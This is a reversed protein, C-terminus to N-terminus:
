LRPKVLSWAYLLPQLIRTASVFCRGNRCVARPPIFRSRGPQEEAPVKATPLAHVRENRDSV